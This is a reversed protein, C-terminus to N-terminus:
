RGEAAIAAEEDSMGLRKFSETLAEKSAKDNEVKPGLNKVKGSETLAAIYAVEDKIAETIGEDTQAEAFRARIRDRAAEPLESKSLAEDLKAKTEAIAKAKNAEEVQTKLGDRETTLAAINGELEAIRGELEMNKKVEKQIEPKLLNEVEQILDPRHERLAELGILEVDLVNSEFLSVGGGAGSETVFDVSRARVLHEIINTKHGEVEGITGTGIANISVGIEALLGKENLNTLKEKMWGEIVVARGLLTNEPVELSAAETATAPHVNKLNAVWDKVSREPKEAEETPTPHDAYMKVGEFVKYEKALMAEPYYREKSVNFGPKIIVIDAEGKGKAELINGVELILTRKLEKVGKSSETVWRPMDEEPVDLARYGARIKRKVAPLDAVPIDVKQGRYGGPSLAAAARGLQPKTVKQEPDEWLRLKWTSPKDPDPVYAYASAPYENGDETKSAELTIVYNLMDEVQALAEAAKNEAPEESSLLENCLDIIKRIRTSDVNANRRGVEMMLEAYKEGLAKMAGAMKATMSGGCEPCKQEGCKVGAEVTVENGCESCVCVHEGHPHVAEKATKTKDSYEEATKAVWKGGSQKFKTKVAAWATANTKEEDGKYEDYAANYAAIFIDQAADPLGKIADPPNDKTYPM